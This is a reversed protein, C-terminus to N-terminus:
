GGGAEAMFVRKVMRHQDMRLVHSFWRLIWHDARSALKREIGARRHVEENTVRDLQSVGVVSGLCKM